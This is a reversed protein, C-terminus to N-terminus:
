MCSWNPSVTTDGLETFLAVSHNETAQYEGPHSLISVTKHITKHRSSAEDCRRGQGDRRYRSAAGLRLGARLSLNVGAHTAWVQAQAFDMGGAQLHPALAAERTM